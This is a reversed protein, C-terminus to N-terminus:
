MRRGRVVPTGSGHDSRGEAGVRDGRLQGRAAHALDPAGV